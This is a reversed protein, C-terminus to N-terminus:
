STRSGGERPTSAVAASSSGGSKQRSTAFWGDTWIEGEGGRLSAGAAFCGQRGVACPATVIAPARSVCFVMLFVLCYLPFLSAPPLPPVTSLSPSRLLVVCVHCSFRFRCLVPTARVVPMPVGFPEARLACAACLFACRAHCTAIVAILFCRAHFVTRSYSPRSRAARTERPALV